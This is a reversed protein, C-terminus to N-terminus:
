TTDILPLYQKDHSRGINTLGMKSTRGDVGGICM